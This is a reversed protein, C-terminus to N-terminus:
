KGSLKAWIGGVRGSGTREAKEEDKPYGAEESEEAVAYRETMEANFSSTDIDEPYYSERPSSSINSSLTSTKTVHFEPDDISHNITRSSLESRKMAQNLVADKYELEREKLTLNSSLEEVSAELEKIKRKMSDRERQFNQEMDISRRSAEMIEERIENQEQVFKAKLDALEKEAKEAAHTRNSLKHELKQNEELYENVESQLKLTKYEFSEKQESILRKYKDTLTKELNSLETNAKSLEDRLLNVEREHELKAGDFNREFLRIQEKLEDIQGKLMNVEQAAHEAREMAEEYRAQNKEAQNAKNLYNDMLVQFEPSAADRDVPQSNQKESISGLKSLIEQLVENLKYPDIQYDTM